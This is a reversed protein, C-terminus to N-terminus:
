LEIWEKLSVEKSSYNMNELRVTGKLPNLIVKTVDDGVFFLEDPFVKRLTINFFEFNGYVEDVSTYDFLNKFIRAM